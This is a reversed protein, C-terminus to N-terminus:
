HLRFLTEVDKRVRKRVEKHIYFKESLLVSGLMSTEHYSTGPRGLLKSCRIFDQARKNFSASDLESPNLEDVFEIGVEEENEVPHLSVSLCRDSVGDDGNAPLITARLSVPGDAYAPFYGGLEEMFTRIFKRYSRECEPLATACWSEFAEDTYADWVMCCERGLNDPEPPLYKCYDESTIELMRVLYPLVGIPMDLGDVSILYNPTGEIQKALENASCTRLSFHRREGMGNGCKIQCRRLAEEVFGVRMGIPEHLVTNASSFFDKFDDDIMSVALERACDIGEYLSEIRYTHMEPHNSLRMAFIPTTEGQPGILVPGKDDDSLRLLVPMDGPRMEKLTIHIVTTTASYEAELRIPADPSSLSRWFAMYPKTKSLYRSSITTYTSLAQRLIGEISEKSLGSEVENSLNMRGRLCDMFLALNNEEFFDLIVGQSDTDATCGSLMVFFNQLLQNGSHCECFAKITANHQGSLYAAALYEQLVAHAFRVTGGDMVLLGSSKGAKEIRDVENADLTNIFYQRFPTANRNVLCELAYSGLQLQLYDADIGGSSDAKSEILAEICTSYVVALNRPVSETGTKRLSEVLCSLHLPNRMLERGVRNFGHMVSWPSNIGKNGLYAIVEEETLSDLVAGNIGIRMHDNKFRSSCILRAEDNKVYRALEAFLLDRDERAEDLGDVILCFLSTNERIYKESSPTAHGFLERAAGECLSSFQRFWGRANILIPIRGSNDNIWSSALDYAIYKMLESKGMGPEAYVLVSKARKVFDSQSLTEGSDFMTIQRPFSSEDYYQILTNCYHALDKKQSDWGSSTSSTAEVLRDLKQNISEIREIAKRDALSEEGTSMINNVADWFESTFVHAVKDADDGLFLKIAEEKTIDFSSRHALLEEVLYPDEFKTGLDISSPMMRARIITEQILNNIEMRKKADEIRAKGWDILISQPIEMAAPILSDM